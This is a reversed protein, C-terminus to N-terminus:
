SLLCVSEICILSLDPPWNLKGQLAQVGPYNKKPALNNMVVGLQSVTRFIFRDPSHTFAYNGYCGMNHNLFPSTGVFNSM